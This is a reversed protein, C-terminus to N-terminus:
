GDTGSVPWEQGPYPVGALADRAIYAIARGGGELAIERREYDEGEFADLSALHAASVSFLEGRIASAGTVLLPYGSLVRLAFRPVTCAEAVFSAGANVNGHRDFRELM